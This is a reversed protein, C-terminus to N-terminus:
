FVEKLDILEGPEGNEEAGQRLTPFWLLIQPVLHPRREEAWVLLDKQKKASVFRRLEEPLEAVRGEELGEICAPNAEVYKRYRLQDVAELGPYRKRRYFVEWDTETPVGVAYAEAEARAEEREAQIQRNVQKRRIENSPTPQKPLGTMEAGAAKEFEGLGQVEVPQPFATLSAAEQSRAELIEYAIEGVNAKKAIAKLAKRGEQIRKKQREKALVAIEARSVGTREPCEAVCVFGTQDFVYIRGVDFLDQRIHVAQGILEELEPAIFWADELKIGQKQVMRQGQKGPAPALLIDLARESDSALKRLTGTYGTLVHFPTKGKLGEHPQHMQAETWKDCFAQFEKATHRVEIVSNKAFLRDAFSQRAEIAKRDAVSHGLFGPLLELVEHSFTKFSREIHPKQWPQFPQCLNQVIPPDFSMLVRQVHNATYDKGNDTKIAEPIGWNLLCWRFLAVIAMAKSTKTVLLRSRRTAVDVVGVLSYRGDSLMVDAPTSDFEWLQNPREIGESYSGFAVMRQNKWADPNTESLLVDANERRYRSMFRALTDKSFPVNPGFRARIGDWVKEPNCGPFEKMMGVAFEAYEGTVKSRGQRGGYRRRLGNVGEKQMQARIRAINSRSLKAVTERTEKSVELSGQNYAEAFASDCDVVLGYGKAECWVRQVRFIELWADIERQQRDNSPSSVTPACGSVEVMQVSETPQLRKSIAKQVEGDVSSLLYEKGGGVKGSRVRSEWTDISGKFRKRFAQQTIHLANAMEPISFWYM